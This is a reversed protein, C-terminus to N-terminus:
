QKEEKLDDKLKQLLKYLLEYDKISIWVCDSNDSNSDLDLQNIEITDDNITFYTELSDEKSLYTRELSDVRNEDVFERTEKILEM